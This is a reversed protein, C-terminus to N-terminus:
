IKRLMTQLREISFLESESVQEERFRVWISKDYQGVAQIIADIANLTTQSPKARLKSYM